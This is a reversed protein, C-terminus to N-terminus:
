LLVHPLGLEHACLDADVVESLDVARPLGTLGRM